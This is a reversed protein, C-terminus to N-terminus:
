AISPPSRGRIHFIHQTPLAQFLDLEETETATLYGTADPEIPLVGKLTISCIPCIVIDETIHAENADHLCDLSTNHYHVMSM